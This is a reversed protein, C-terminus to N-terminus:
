LLSPLPRRVLIPKGERGKGASPPQPVNWITARPRKSIPSRRLRRRSRQKGRPKSRNTDLVAARDAGKEDGSEGLGCGVCPHSRTSAKPALTSSSTAAAGIRRFEPILSWHLLDPAASAPTRTSACSRFATRARRHLERSTLSLNTTKFWRRVEDTDKSPLLTRV